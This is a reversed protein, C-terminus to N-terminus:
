RDDSVSWAAFVAWPVLMGAMVLATRSQAALWGIEYGLLVTLGAGVVLLTGYYVTSLRRM